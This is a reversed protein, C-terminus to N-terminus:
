RFHYFTVAYASQYIYVPIKAKPNRPPTCYHRWLPSVSSTTVQRLGRNCLFYLILHYLLFLLFILGWLALVIMIVSQNEFNM